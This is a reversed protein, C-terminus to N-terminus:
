PPSTISRSRRLDARKARVIRTVIVPSILSFSILSFSIRHFTLSQPPICHFQVQYSLIFHFSILDLSNIETRETREDDEDDGRGKKGEGYRCIRWAHSLYGYKLIQTELGIERVNWSLAVYFIGLSLIVLLNYTCSYTGSCKKSM